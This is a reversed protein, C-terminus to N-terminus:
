EFLSLSSFLTSSILIDFIKGSGELSSLPSDFSLTTQPNTFDIIGDMITGDIGSLYGYFNYFKDVTSIDYTTPLTLPWGWASGSTNATGLESLSYQTTTGDRLTASSLPQYTNLKAYTGSFKEYAVIPTGATVVYSITNIDGAGASLYGPVSSSLNKGYTNKTVHGKSDFNESFKNKAGRFKNYSTSLINILRKIETPQQLITRDFVLGEEDLMSSLNVLSNVDCFDIDYNNQVFNWISEYLKKGLLNHRSSVGGFITGIFDTFFINKDLLIEQFRLDKITQEFDFDENTKYLAYYDKPFCSLYTAGTLNTITSDFVYDNSASLTLTTPATSLNDNFTLLGRFWFNTGFTTLPSSISSITYNHTAVICLPHTLTNSGSLIKFYPYSASLAKATYNDTNKPSLVFPIGVGKFQVPSVPFSNLEDGEECLGNSTIGINSLTQGSTSGVYTSLTINLVNLYDKNELKTQGRTYINKNDKYLSIYIPTTQEETKFYVIERGSSGALIASTDAEDCVTIKVQGANSGFSSLKVYINDASLGIKKLEVYENGSLSPLFVKKYLSYYNKLHNFKNNELNFYNDYNIGSVSYYIDQFDQYYPTQSIVSLPASFGGASLNLNSLHGKGLHGGGAAGVTPDEFEVDFTNIIYDHIEVDSNYSGLVANNACDRLIMKVNYKGPVKFLHSSSLGSSTTGDGFDFIVKTNNLQLGKSSTTESIKAQFILPTFLLNYSSIVGATTLPEENKYDIVSFTAYDTVINSM